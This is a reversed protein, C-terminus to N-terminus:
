FTVPKIHLKVALSVDGDIEFPLRKNDLLKINVFRTVNSSAKVYHPNVFVLSQNIGKPGRELVVSRLLNIASNGFNSQEVVSSCVHVLDNHLATPAAKMTRDYLSHDVEYKLDALGCRIRSDRTIFGDVEDILGLSWSNYLGLVKALRKSINLAINNYSFKEFATGKLNFYDKDPVDSTDFTSKVYEKDPPLPKRPDFEEMPYTTTFGNERFKTTLETYLSDFSEALKHRDLQIKVRAIIYTQGQIIEVDPNASYFPNARLRATMTKIKSLLNNSTFPKHAILETVLIECDQDTFFDSSKKSLIHLETLGIEVNETEMDNILATTYDNIKNDYINDTDNDYPLTVYKDNM